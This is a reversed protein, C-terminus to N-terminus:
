RARGPSASNGPEQEIVRKKQAAVLDPALTGLFRDMLAEVLNRAPRRGDAAARLGRPQGLDRERQPSAVIEGFSRDAIIAASRQQTPSPRGHNPPRSGRRHGLLRFGRHPGDRVTAPHAGVFFPTM